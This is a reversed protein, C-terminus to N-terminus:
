VELERGALRRRAEDDSKAPANALPTGRMADRLVSLFVRQGKAKLAPAIERAKASCAQVGYEDCLLQAAGHEEKGIWVGAHVLHDVDGALARRTAAHVPVHVPIRDGEGEPLWQSPSSAAGGAATLGGAGTAGDGTEGSKGAGRIGAGRAPSGSAGATDGATSGATPGATDGATDGPVHGAPGRSDSATGGAADDDSADGFGEGRIVVGPPLPFRPPRQREEKHMSRLQHKRFTPICVLPRGGVVYTVVLGAVALEALWSSVDVATCQDYPFLEAKIRLPREELLGWGDALSWLGLFLLRADRSVGGLQESKWFDPKISRIRV